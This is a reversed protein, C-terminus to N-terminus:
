DQIQATCWAALAMLQDCDRAWKEAQSPDRDDLIWWQLKHYVRHCARANAAHRFRDVEAYTEYAKRANGADAWVGARQVMSDIQSEDRTSLKPIIGAPRASTQTDISTM